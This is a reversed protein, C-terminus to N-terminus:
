RSVWEHAVLVRSPALYEDRAVRLLPSVFQALLEVSALAAFHEGLVSRLDQGIPELVSRPWYRGTAVPLKRSAQEIDSDPPFLAPM